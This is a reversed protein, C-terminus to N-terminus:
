SQVGCDELRTPMSGFNVLLRLSKLLVPSANWFCFGCGSIRPVPLVGEGDISIVQTGGAYGFNLNYKDLIALFTKTSWTHARVSFRSRVSSTCTMRSTALPLSMFVSIPIHASSFSLASDVQVHNFPINRSNELLVDSPFKQRGHGTAVGSSESVQKM